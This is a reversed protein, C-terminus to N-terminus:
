GRCRIFLSDGLQFLTLEDRISGFKKSKLNM